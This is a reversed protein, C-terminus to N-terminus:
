RGDRQANAHPSNSLRLGALKLVENAGQASTQDLWSRLRLIEEERSAQLMMYAKMETLRSRLHAGEPAQNALGALQDWATVVRQKDDDSLNQISFHSPFMLLNPSVMSDGLADVSRLHRYLDLLHLANLIQVTPTIVLSVGAVNRSLQHVARLNDEIQRWDSGRRIITALEGYADISAQVSVREFKAWLELVSTSSSGAALRTLNTNYRLHVQTRGARILRKLLDEHEALLIPEGGCFYIEEFEGIHDDFFKWFDEPKGFARRLTPGDYRGAAREKQAFLSSNVEDCMICALNCLNSFRVDLYVSRRVQRRGDSDTKRILDAHHQFRRNMDQRYSLSGFEAEPQSCRYCSAPLRGRLMEVRFANAAPSDLAEDLGSQHTHGFVYDQNICCPIVRGDTWVAAHLWPLICLHKSSLLEQAADDKM